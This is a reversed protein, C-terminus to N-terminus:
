GPSDPQTRTERLLLLKIQSLRSRSFAGKGLVRGGSALVPVDQGYRAKLLPDTDVDVVQFTFALAKLHSEAQECLHCGLRSYLTLAPVAPRQVPDQQDPGTRGTM